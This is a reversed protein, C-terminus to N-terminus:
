ARLHELTLEGCHTLLNKTGRIPNSIDNPIKLIADRWGFCSARGEVEKLFGHIGPTKCNFCDAPDCQDWFLTVSKSNTIGGRRKAMPEHDQIQQAYQQPSLIRTPVMVIYYTNLIIFKQPRGQDDDLYWQITGCLTAQASGAIGKVNCKIGRSIYLFDKCDNTISASAGDDLM